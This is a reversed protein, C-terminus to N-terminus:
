SAALTRTASHPAVSLGESLYECGATRGEETVDQPIRPRGVTDSVPLLFEILIKQILSFVLFFWPREKGVDLCPKSFAGSPGRCGCGKERPSRFRGAGAQCCRTGAEWGM